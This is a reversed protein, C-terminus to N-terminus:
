FIRLESTAGERRREREKTAATTIHPLAYGDKSSVIPVIFSPPIKGVGAVVSDISSSAAAHAELESDSDGM